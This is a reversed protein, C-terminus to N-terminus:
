DDASASLRKMSEILASLHRRHHALHAAALPALAATGAPTLRLITSRRDHDARSRGVLGATVLRDILEVTSNLKICLQGALASTTVPQTDSLTRVALLAQYQSPPLGQAQTIEESFALFRRLYLRFDALTRYDAASPMPWPLDTHDAAPSTTDPCAAIPMAAMLM